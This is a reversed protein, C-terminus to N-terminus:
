IPVRGFGATEIRHRVPKSGARLVQKMDKGGFAACVVHNAPILQSNGESIGMSIGKELTITQLMFSREILFRKLAKGLVALACVGNM